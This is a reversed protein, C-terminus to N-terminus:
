LYWDSVKLYSYSIGDSLETVAYKGVITIEQNELPYDEPYSHEGEWVFEIGQQCCATADPILIAFYKEDSTDDDFVCFNGKVKITKEAYDDPNVIMDFVTSYIMTASMQTLDIENKDSDLNQSTPKKSKSCGAFVLILLIGFAASFIKKKM